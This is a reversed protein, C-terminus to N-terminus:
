GDAGSQLRGAADSRIAKAIEIDSGTLEGKDDFYNFDFPSGAHSINPAHRSQGRGVSGGRDPPM